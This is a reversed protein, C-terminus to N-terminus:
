SYRGTTVMEQQEEEGGGWFFFAPINKQLTEDYLTHLILIYQLITGTSCFQAICRGGSGFTQKGYHLLADRANQRATICATHCDNMVNIVFVSCCKTM